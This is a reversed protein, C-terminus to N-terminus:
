RPSAPDQTVAVRVRATGAGITFRTSRRTSATRPDATLTIVTGSVGTTVSMTVWSAPSATVRWAAQNTVVTVTAAGGAGPLAVSDTSVTVTPPAAAQSVTYTATANGATITLSTARAPGLNPQATVTIVDASVGSDQSLSV